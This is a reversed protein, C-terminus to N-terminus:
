TSACSATRELLANVDPVTGCAASAIEPAIRKTLGSLVAGPGLEVFLASPHTAALHRIVAAWRVPATLQRVLSERAERATSVPTATVNACIPFEPDQFPVSELIGHLGPAASAMLPSHFAGSVNLRMARRAGAARALEMARDVAVVDGSIVVQQPSNYNAPVVVSRDSSARGCIAEVTDTLEGILAAMAGPQRVGAEFMLEGRRRVVRVADPLGMSGAACYATFEGLSHGAAAVVRLTARARVAALAAIGHVLLAPQANHTRTLEDAPGDFCLATLAIGLATDASAFVARSEPYADHLDRGMGPQQSGQGPFLLVVDM